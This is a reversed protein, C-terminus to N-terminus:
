WNIASDPNRDTPSVSFKTVTNPGSDNHFDRLLSISDMWVASHCEYYTMQRIDWVAM